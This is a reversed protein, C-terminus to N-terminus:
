LHCLLLHPCVDSQFLCLAVADAFHLLLLQQQQLMLRCRYLLLGVATCCNGFILDPCPEALMEASGNASDAVCAPVTAFRLLLAAHDHQGVPYCASEKKEVTNCAHLLGLMCSQVCQLANWWEVWPRSLSPPM